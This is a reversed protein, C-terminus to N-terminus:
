QTEDSIIVGDRMTIIRDTLRAANPNHTVLIITKGDDALKRLLNM